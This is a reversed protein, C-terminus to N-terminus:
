PGDLTNPPKPNPVGAGLLDPDDDDFRFCRNLRTIRFVELMEPALNSLRLDLSHQKAAKALLLFKNLMASSMFRVGRFDVILRKSCSAARQCIDLLGSGIEQIQNEDVIKADSFFITIKDPTEHFRLTMIFAGIISRRKQVLNGASVNLVITALAM